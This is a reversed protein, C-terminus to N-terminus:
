SHFVRQATSKNHLAPKADVEDVKDVHSAETTTSTKLGGFVLPVRRDSSFPSIPAEENKYLVKNGLTMQLSEEHMKRQPAHAPQTSSAVSDAPRHKVAQPQPPKSSVQQAVSIAEHHNQKPSTNRYLFVIRLTVEIMSEAIELTSPKLFIDGEEASMLNHIHLCMKINQFYSSFCHCIGTLKRSSVDDLEAMTTSNNSQRQAGFLRSLLRANTKWLWEYNAREFVPKHLVFENIMHLLEDISPMLRIWEHSVTLSSFATARTLIEFDLTRNVLYSFLCLNAALDSRNMSLTLDNILDHITQNLKAKQNSLVNHAMSRDYAKMPDSHVPLSAVPPTLPTQTQQFQQPQYKFNNSIELSKEDRLRKLNSNLADISKQDIAPMSTDIPQQTESEFNLQRKGISGADSDDDESGDSKFDDADGRQKRKLNEFPYKKM